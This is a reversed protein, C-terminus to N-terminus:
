RLPLGYLGRRLRVVEGAQQMKFLLQDMANRDSRETAALIESIHMGTDGAAKLVELIAARQGSSHVEAAEGLLTWRCTTKDFRCATEKEDIDRGRAFLTVSGSQRKIVLITDAAGTLGNTGSVMDFPDDAEMKRVHHIVVVAIGHRHALKHLGGIADYDTSYAPTHPKAVPRLKELTDVVILTPKNATRCWDEIDDLGGENAKRWETALTLRSPWDGNPWLKQLRRQLRRESDELALYLVDGEAPKIDGLVFRGAASALCVDYLLWSKGIKPKGAFITVGEPIYGPVVYSIPKFRKAKLDSASVVANRWDASKKEAPPQWHPAAAVRRSLEPASASKLYDSVDAKPGLEPFAIVKVSRAVPYAIKAKREAHEIGGKDNDALIVVERGQLFPLIGGPLGDGTGGFTFSALDHRGLTDCDKEGEPWYVPTSGIEAAFPDVAGVYPCPLYGEPKESVWGLQGECHTRYWNVYGGSGRKIKIRVLQGDRRYAHRRVEDPFSGPFREDPLFTPPRQPAEVPVKATGFARPAIDAGPRPSAAGAKVGSKITSYLEHGRLGIGEAVPKLHQLIEGERLRLSALRASSKFLTDNRTGEVAASLSAVEGDIAARVYADHDRIM